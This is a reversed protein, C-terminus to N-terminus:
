RAGGFNTGPVMKRVGTVKFEVPYFNTGPVLKRQATM